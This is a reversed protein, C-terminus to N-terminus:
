RFNRSEIRLQGLLASHNEMRRAILHRVGDSTEVRGEVLLLESELLVRRFDEGVQRWVVVNVMGFEDQLTVFTIGSATQPRQRMTVLGAFRVARGHALQGYDRSHVCRRAALQRRLLSLPHAGLTLGTTRYDALTDQGATPVPLRVPDDRVALGAFLPLQKEVGDM